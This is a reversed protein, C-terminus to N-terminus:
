AWALSSRTTWYSKATETVSSLEELDADTLELNVAAANSRIQEPTVAGSMAVDAWPQALAAAIAVMDASTGLLSATAVVPGPANPGALRGNAVAEKVLIGWGVEHAEALAEGASRELLNWTAQVVGFPTVGDVRVDLARRITDAQTPGSVSLGSVVGRERLGVLARLVAADELVGSDLTASHIQYLSLRDGLVAFTEAWQREFTALSHDKVEHVEADMRWDGTYTYGWKSGITIEGPPVYRLQLWSSLFEEALGYSRAVDVYRIGAEYAADLVEFARARLALVSRDDGLDRDRRLNIYAPRGLAALGLGVSTVWLGTSGLPRARV